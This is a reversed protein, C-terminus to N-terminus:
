ARVQVLVLEKRKDMQYVGSEAVTFQHYCGLGTCTRQGQKTQTKNCKPCTLQPLPKNAM